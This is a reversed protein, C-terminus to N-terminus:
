TRRHRMCRQDRRPSADSKPAQPRVKYTDASTDRSEQSLPGDDQSPIRRVGPATLSIFRWYFSRAADNAAAYRRPTSPHITRPGTPKGDISAFCFVPWPWRKWVLM